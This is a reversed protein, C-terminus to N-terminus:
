RIIIMYMMSNNNKRNNNKKDFIYFYRMALDIMKCLIFYFRNQLTISFLFIYTIDM